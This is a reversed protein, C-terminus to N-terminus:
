FLSANRKELSDELGMYLLDFASNDTDKLKAEFAIPDFFAEPPEKFYSYVVDTRKGGPRYLSSRIPLKSSRLAWIQLRWQGWPGEDSETEFVVIDKSSWSGGNVRTAIEDIRGSFMAELRHPSTRTHPDYNELFGWRKLISLTFIGPYGEKRTDLDFTKVDAGKKAFTVQNGELIRIRNGQGVWFELSCTESFAHRRHFVTAAHFPYSAFNQIVKAWTPTSNGVLFYVGLVICILATGALACSRFRNPSRTSIRPWKSAGQRNEKAVYPHAKLDERFAEFRKNLKNEIPQPIESNLADKLAEWEPDHNQHKNDQNREDM